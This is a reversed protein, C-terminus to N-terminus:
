HSYPTLTSILEEKHRASPGFIRHSDSLSIGDVSREDTSRGSSSASDSAKRGRHSSLRRKQRRLEWEGAQTDPEGRCLCLGTIGAAFALLAPTTNRCEERSSKKEPLLVRNARAAPHFKDAAKTRSGM